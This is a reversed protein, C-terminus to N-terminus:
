LNNTALTIATGSEYGLQVCAVNADLSDWRHSCIASWKSSSGTYFELVGALNSDSFGSVRVDGIYPEGADLLCDTYVFCGEFM